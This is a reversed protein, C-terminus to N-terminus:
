ISSLMSWVTEHGVILALQRSIPTNKNREPEECLQGKFSDILAKMFSNVSCAPSFYYESNGRENLMRAFLAMEAPSKLSSYIKEFGDQLTIHKGTAIEVATFEIKYWSM